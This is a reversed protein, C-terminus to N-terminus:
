WLVTADLILVSYKKNRPFHCSLLPGFLGQTWESHITSTQDM